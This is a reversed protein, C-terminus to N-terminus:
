KSIIKLSKVLTSIYVPYLENYVQAETKKDIDEIMKYQEIIVKGGDLEENMWHTAVSAKSNRDAILRAIPHLGKYQYLCPHFNICRISEVFQRNLIKWGHCCIFLDVSQALKQTLVSSNLERKDTTPLQLLKATETLKEDDAIVAVLQHGLGVLTLLIIMGATEGGYFAVKM